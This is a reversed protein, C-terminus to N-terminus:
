TMAARSGKESKPQEDLSRVEGGEADNRKKKTECVRTEM